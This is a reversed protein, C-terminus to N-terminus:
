DDTQGSDSGKLKRLAEWRPDPTPDTDDPSKSHFIFKGETGDEDDAERFDPHLRKMPVELVIFDYIYQRVDLEPQGFPLIIIEDSLEEAAEGFKFYLAKEVSFPQVFPQLSRDCTLNLSGELAFQLTLMTETKEMQLSVAAQGDQGDLPEDQQSNFDAFFSPGVQFQFNHRGAELRALNLIFDAQTSEM